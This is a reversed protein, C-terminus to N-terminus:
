SSICTTPKRDSASIEVSTEGNSFKKLEV